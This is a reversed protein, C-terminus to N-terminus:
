GSRKGHHRKGLNLGWILRWGTAELFTGLARLNNQNVVTAKPASVASGNAAFSSYDSTNGGIRIVGRRSLRRVLKVYGQNRASLPGDAVSSIEYGLGIFDPPIPGLRRKSEIRVRVARAEGLAPFATASVAAGALFSRRNMLRLGDRM